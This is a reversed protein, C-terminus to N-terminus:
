EEVIDKIKRKIVDGNSLRVLVTKANQKVLEVKEIIEKISDDKQLIRRKIKM